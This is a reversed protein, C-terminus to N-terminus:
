FCLFIKVASSKWQNLWPIWVRRFIRMRSLRKFKTRSTSSSLKASRTQRIKKRKRKRKSDLQWLNRIRKM